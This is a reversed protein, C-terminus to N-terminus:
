PPFGAEVGGDLVIPTETPTVVELPGGPHFPPAPTVTAGGVDSAATRRPVVTSPVIVTGQPGRTSPPVPTAQVTPTRTPTNTQVTTPSVLLTPTPMITPTPLIPAQPQSFVGFVWLLVAVLFALLVGGVIMWGILDRRPTM